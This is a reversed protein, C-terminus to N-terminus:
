GKLFMNLIYWKQLTESIVNVLWSLFRTVSHLDGVGWINM